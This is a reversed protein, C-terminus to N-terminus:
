RSFDGGWEETDPIGEFRVVGYRRIVAPDQMVLLFEGAPLPVQVVGFSTYLDLVQTAEMIQFATGLGLQQRAQRLREPSAEIPQPRQAWEYAM